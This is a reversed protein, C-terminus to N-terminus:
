EDSLPEPAFSLFLGVWCFAALFAALLVVLSGAAGNPLPPVLWGSTVPLTQLALAPLAWLLLTFGSRLPRRLTRALGRLWAVIASRRGAEGLLWAGHLTALWCLATILVSAGLGFWLLVMLRGVSGVTESKPMLLDLPVWLVILILLLLVTNLNFSSGSKSNM